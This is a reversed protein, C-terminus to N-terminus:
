RGRFLWRGVCAALPLGIWIAPHCRRLAVGLAVAGAGFALGSSYGAPARPAAARAVELDADSWGALVLTDGLTLAPSRRTVRVSESQWTTSYEFRTHIEEQEIAGSTVYLEEALWAPAGQVLKRVRSPTQHTFAALPTEVAGALHHVHEECLHRATGTHRTVTRDTYKQGFRAKPDHSTSTRVQRQGPEADTRQLVYSYVCRGSTRDRFTVAGLFGHEVLARAYEALARAVQPVDRRWAEGDLTTEHVPAANFEPLIPQLARWRDQALKESTQPDPASVVISQRVASEGLFGAIEAQVASLRRGPERHGWGRRDDGSPPRVANEIIAALIPELSQLVTRAVGARRPQGIGIQRDRYHPKTATLNTM